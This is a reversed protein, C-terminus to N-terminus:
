PFALDDLNESFDIARNGEAKQFPGYCNEAEASQHFLDFDVRRPKVSVGFFFESRGFFDKGRTIAGSVM